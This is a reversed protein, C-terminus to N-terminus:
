ALHELHDREFTLLDRAIPSDYGVLYVEFHGLVATVSIPGRSNVHM